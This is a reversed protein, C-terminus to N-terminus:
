GDFHLGISESISESCLIGHAKIYSKSLHLSVYVAGYNRLM